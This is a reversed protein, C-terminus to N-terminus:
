EMTGDCPWEVVPEKKKQAEKHGFFFIDAVKNRPNKETQEWRKKSPALSAELGKVQWVNGTKKRKRDKM